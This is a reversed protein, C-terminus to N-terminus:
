LVRPLVATHLSCLSVSGAAGHWRCAFCKIAARLVSCLPAHTHLVKGPPVARRLWRCALCHQLAAWPQSLAQSPVAALVRKHLVSGGAARLCGCSTHCGQQLVKRLGLQQCVICTGIDIPRKTLMSVDFTAWALLIGMARVLSKAPVLVLQQWTGEGGETPWPCATVRQGPKFGQVDPGVAEVVGM